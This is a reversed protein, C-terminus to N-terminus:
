LCLSLGLYFCLESTQQVAGLTDGTYGSINKEVWARTVYHGMFLLLLGAFLAESHLWPWSGTLVILGCLSAIQWSRTSLGRAVPKGTGEARVYNSRVIVIVSSLRSLTHGAILAAAVSGAPIDVLLAMKLTIVIILALSGYTGLRSDRMVELARDADAGGGIGDFTDALGDEHFAGTLMLTATTSLMVAIVESLNTTALLYVTAAVAGIMTGVLPYYRPASAMRQDTFITTTNVPIRTLLQIALLLKAIENKM